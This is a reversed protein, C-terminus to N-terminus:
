DHNAHLAEGVLEALQADGLGQLFADDFGAAATGAATEPAAGADAAGFREPVAMHPRVHDPGVACAALLAAALASIAIRSVMAAFGGPLLLRRHTRRRRDAGPARQY